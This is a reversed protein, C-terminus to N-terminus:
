IIRDWILENPDLEGLAKSGACNAVDVIRDPLKKSVVKEVWNLHGIMAEGETDYAEVIIFFDPHYDPHQLATEFPKFGDSVMATFVVIDGDEYCEVVRTEYNGIDEMFEGMWGLLESFGFNSM